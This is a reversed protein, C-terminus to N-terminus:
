FIALIGLIFIIMLGVIIVKRRFNCIDKLRTIEYELYNQCQILNDSVAKLNDNEERLNDIKKIKEENLEDAEDLLSNLKKITEQSRREVDDKRLIINVLDDIGKKSLSTRRAKVRADNVDSKIKAM